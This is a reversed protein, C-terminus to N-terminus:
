SYPSHWIIGHHIRPRIEGFLIKNIGTESINSLRTTSVADSFLTLFHLSPRADGAKTKYTFIHISPKWCTWKLKGRKYLQITVNKKKIEQMQENDTSITKRGILWPLFWNWGTTTIWSYSLCASLASLKQTGLGNAICYRESPVSQNGENHCHTANNHRYPFSSLSHIITSGDLAVYVMSGLFPLKVRNIYTCLSKKRERNWPKVCLVQNENKEWM